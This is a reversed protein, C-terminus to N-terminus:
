MLISFIHGKKENLHESKQKGFPIRALYSKIPLDSIIAGMQTTTPMQTVLFLNSKLFKRM